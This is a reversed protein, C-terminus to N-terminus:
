RGKMRLSRCVLGRSGTVLRYTAISKSATLVVMTAVISTCLGAAKWFAKRQWVLWRLACWRMACRIQLIALDGMTTADGSLPPICRAPRTRSATCCSVPRSTPEAIISFCRLWSTRVPVCNAPSTAPASTKMTSSMMAVPFVM